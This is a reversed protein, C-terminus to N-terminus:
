TTPWRPPGSPVAVAAPRRRGKSRMAVGRDSLIRQITGYSRGSAACISRITAGRVVYADEVKDAFREADEGRLQKGKPIRPLELNQATAADTGAQPTQEHSTVNM